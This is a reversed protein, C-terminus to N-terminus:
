RGGVFLATGHGFDGVGGGLGIAQPFVTARGIWAVGHLAECGTHFAALGLREVAPQQQHLFAIKEAVTLKAVLM